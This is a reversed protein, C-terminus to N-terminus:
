LPSELALVSDLIDEPSVSALVRAVTQRDSGYQLSRDDDPRAVIIRHRFVKKAALATISPTLYDLGHLAATLRCRTLIPGFLISVM